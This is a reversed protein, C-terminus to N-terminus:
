GSLLVVAHVAIGEGRGIWGMKENTKAKISVCDIPLELLAAINSRINLIYESLKPKEAIVTADLNLIEFHKERILHFIQKLLNESSIGKYQPDSDPFRQGLDGLATAGLLADSIAHLLVDGDSHSQIGKDFPIRVGGLFIHTGPIFRHSDYGQGIRCTKM